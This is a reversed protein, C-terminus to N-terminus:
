SDAFTVMGMIARAANAIIIRALSNLGSIDVVPSTVMVDSDGVIHSVGTGVAAVTSVMLKPVGPPLARLAASAILTGQGGGLSVAASIQGEDYLRRVIAASGTQMAGIAGAKDGGARLQTLSTGAARAVDDACVDPTFPPDGIIGTDVVVARGGLEKILEKLFAFENGKTDLTGVLAISRIGETM